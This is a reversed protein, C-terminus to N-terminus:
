DDLPTVEFRRERRRDVAEITRTRNGFLEVMVEPIAVRAPRRRRAHAHL